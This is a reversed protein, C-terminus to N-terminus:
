LTVIKRLMLLSKLNGRMFSRKRLDPISAVSVSKSYPGIDKIFDALMVM